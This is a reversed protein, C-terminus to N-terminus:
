RDYYKNSILKKLVKIVKASIKQKRGKAYAYMEDPDFGVGYWVLAGSSLEVTNFSSEDKLLKKVVTVEGIESFYEVMDLVSVSGDSFKVTVRPYYVQKIEIITM